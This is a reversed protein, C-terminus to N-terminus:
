PAKLKHDYGTMELYGSGRAAGSKAGTLIIAGEWYSPVIKSNGSVEQAALETTADLDIGLSPVQIKWRIPYSAHTEPSTWHENLMPKLEFDHLGLQRSNGRADVFTGASYPGISGDKRRINFLM